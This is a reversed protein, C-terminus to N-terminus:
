PVKGALALLRRAFAARYITDGSARTLPAPAVPDGTRTVSVRSPWPQTFGDTWLGTIIHTVETHLPAADITMSRGNVLVPSALLKQQASVASRLTHPTAFGGSRQAVLVLLGRDGDGHSEGGDEKQRDPTGPAGARVVAIIAGPFSAVAGPPGTQELVTWPGPLAADEGADKAQQRADWNLSAALEAAAQLARRWTFRYAPSGVSVLEAVLGETRECLADIEPQQKVAPLANLDHCLRIWADPARACAPSVWEHHYTAAQTFPRALADAEVKGLFTWPDLPPFRGDRGLTRVTPNINDRRYASPTKRGLANAGPRRNQGSMARDLAKHLSDAVFPLPTRRGDDVTATLDPSSTAQRWHGFSRVIWARDVESLGSSRTDAVGHEFRSLDRLKPAPGGAGASEPHQIQRAIIDRPVNETPKLQDIGRALEQSRARLAVLDLALHERVRRGHRGQVKELAVILADLHQRAFSLAAHNGWANHYGFWSRGWRTWAVAVESHEAALARPLLSTGLTVRGPMEGVAISAAATAFLPAPVWPADSETLAGAVAGAATSAAQDATIDQAADILLLQTESRRAIRSLATARPLKTAGRSLVQNEFLYGLLAERVRRRRDPRDVLADAPDVVAQHVAEEALAESEVDVVMVKFDWAEVLAAIIGVGIVVKIADFFLQLDSPVPFGAMAEQAAARTASGPVHGLDDLARAIANPYDWAGRHGKAPMAAGFIRTGSSSLQSEGPAKPSRLRPRRPRPVTDVKRHPSQQELTGMSARQAVIAQATRVFAASVAHQIETTTLPTGISALVPVLPQGADGYKYPAELLRFTMPFRAASEQIRKARRSKAALLNQTATQYIPGHRVGRPLKDRRRQLVRIDDDLRILDALLQRLDRVAPSNQRVELQNARSAFLVAPTPDAFYDFIKTLGVADLPGESLDERQFYDDVAHSLTRESRNFTDHAIQTARGEVAVLDRYIDSAFTRTADYWNELINTTDVPGEWDVMARLSAGRQIAQAIAQQRRLEQANAEKLQRHTEAVASWGFRSYSYHLHRRIDDRDATLWTEARDNTEPDTITIRVAGRYGIAANTSRSASSDWVAPSPELDVLALVDHWVDELPDGTPVQRAGAPNAAQQGGKARASRAQQAARRADAKKTGRTANSM